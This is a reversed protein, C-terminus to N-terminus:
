KFVSKINGFLGKKRNSPSSNIVAMLIDFSDKPNYDYTKSMMFLGLSFPHFHLDNNRSANINYKKLDSKLNTVFSGYNYMLFEKAFEEKNVHEPMLDCKTLVIKVFATKSLIGDRKIKELVFALIERQNAIDLKSDRFYDIVFLLGKHNENHLYGKAGISSDNDISNNEYTRRFYEGSMEIINFMQEKEKYKLTASIYNVSDQPTAPPVYGVEICKILDNYYRYGAINDVDARIIGNQQAEYLLGALVCSKGSGPVGFFFIDTRDSLLPPLDNWNLPPNTFEPPNLILELKDETIAGSSYLDNVSIKGESLLDTLTTANYNNPNNIIDDIIQQKRRNIDDYLIRIRDHADAANKSNPYREIFDNFARLSNVSQAYDWADREANLEEEIKIMHRGIIDQKERSLKRTDKMEDLSIEDNKIFELLKEVELMQINRLINAKNEPTLMNM